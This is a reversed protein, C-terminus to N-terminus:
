NNCPWALHRDPKESWHSEGEATDAPRMLRGRPVQCFNNALHSPRSPCGQVVENSGRKGKKGWAERGEDTCSQPNGGVLLLFPPRVLGGTCCRYDFTELFAGLSGSQLVLNPLSPTYYSRSRLGIWLQHTHVIVPGGSMPLLTARILRSSQQIKVPTAYFWPGAMWCQAAYSPQRIEM